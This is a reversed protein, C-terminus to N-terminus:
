CLGTDKLDSDMERFIKTQSIPWIIWWWMLWRLRVTVVM